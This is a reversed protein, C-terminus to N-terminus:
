DVLLALEGSGENAGSVLVGPVAVAIDYGWVEGTAVITALAQERSGQTAESRLVGRCAEQGGL